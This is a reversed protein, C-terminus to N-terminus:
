RATRHISQRNEEQNKPEFSQNITIATLKRSGGHEPALVWSMLNSPWRRAQEEATRHARARNLVM